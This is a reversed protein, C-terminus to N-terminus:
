FGGYSLYFYGLNKSAVLEWREGRMFLIWVVCIMGLCRLEGVIRLSSLIESKSSDEGESGETLVALEVGRLSEEGWAELEASRRDVDLVGVSDTWILARVDNKLM